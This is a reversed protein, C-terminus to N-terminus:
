IDLALPLRRGRASLAERIFKRWQIAPQWVRMVDGFAQDPNESLETVRYLFVFTSARLGLQCHVLIRKDRNERMIRAFRDFDEQRPSAFDVPINFYRMGQQGVLTGEDEHAGLAKSPALNIVVDFGAKAIDAFQSRTPMGASSIRASNDVYNLALPGPTVAFPLAIRVFALFGAIVVATFTVCGIIRSRHAFM